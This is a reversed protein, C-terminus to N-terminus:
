RSQSGASGAAEARELEPHRQLGRHRRSGARPRAAARAPRRTLKRVTSDSRPARRSMTSADTQATWSRSRTARGSRPSLGSCGRVAVARLEGGPLSLSSTRRETSKSTSTTGLIPCSCAGHPRAAGIRTRSGRVRLWPSSRVPRRLSVRLLDRADPRHERWWSDM